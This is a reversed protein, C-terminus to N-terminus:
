RQLTVAEPHDGLSLVSFPFPDNPEHVFVSMLLLLHIRVELDSCLQGRFYVVLEAVLGSISTNDADYQALCHQWFRQRPADYPHYPARPSCSSHTPTLFSNFPLFVYRFQITPKVGGPLDGVTALELRFVRV